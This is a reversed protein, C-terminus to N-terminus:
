LWVAPVRRYKDLTERVEPLWTETMYAVNVGEVARSVVGMRDPDKVRYEWAVQKTVALHLDAAATTWGYWAEQGAAPSTLFGATYTIEVIGPGTWFEAGGVLEVIGERAHVVFDEDWGETLATADPRLKLTAVATVPAEPLWLKTGGESPLRPLITGNHTYARSLVHRGMHTEARASVENILKVIQDEDRGSIGDQGLHRQVRELTTLAYTNEGVAM